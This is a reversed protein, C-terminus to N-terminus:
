QKLEKDKEAAGLRQAQEANANATYVYWLGAVAAFVALSFALVIGLSWPSGTIVARGMWDPAFISFLDFALYLSVIVSLVVIVQRQQRAYLQRIPDGAQM